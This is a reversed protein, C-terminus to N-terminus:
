YRAVETCLRGLIANTADINIKSQALQVEKKIEKSMGYVGKLLSRSKKQRLM